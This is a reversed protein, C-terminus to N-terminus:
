GQVMPFLHVVGWGIAAQALTYRLFASAVRWELPRTADVHGCAVRALVFGCVLVAIAVHVVCFGVLMWVLSAYAHAQPAGVLESVAPPYLV